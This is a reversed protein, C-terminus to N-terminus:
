LDSRRETFHIGDTKDRGRFTQLWSLLICVICCITKRQSTKILISYWYKGRFDINFSFIWRYAFTDLWLLFIVIPFTHAPHPLAHRSYLVWSVSAPANDRTWPRSPILLVNLSAQAVTYSGEELIFLALTQFVLGAHVWDVYMRLM